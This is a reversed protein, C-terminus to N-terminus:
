NATIEKREYYKKTLFDIGYYVVLFPLFMQGIVMIPTYLPGVLNYLIELPTGPFNKSIFM